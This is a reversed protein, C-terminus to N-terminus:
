FSLNLSFDLQAACIDEHFPSNPNLFGEWFQETSSHFQPFPFQDCDFESSCESVLEFPFQSLPRPPSLLCEMKKEGVEEKESSCSSDDFHVRKREKRREEKREENREEKREKRRKREEKRSKKTKNNKREENDEKHQTSPLSDPILFSTQQDFFLGNEITLFNFFKAKSLLTTSLFMTSKNPSLHPQLLSPSYSLSLQHRLLSNTFTVSASKALKSVRLSRYKKNYKLKVDCSPHLKKLTSHIAYDSVYKEGRWEFTPFAGKSGDFFRTVMSNEMEKRLSKKKTVTKKGM